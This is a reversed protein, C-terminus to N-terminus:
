LRVGHGQQVAGPWPEVCKLSVHVAQGSICKLSRAHGGVAVEDMIKVPNRRSVITLVPPPASSLRTTRDSPIDGIFRESRHCAHALESMHPFYGKFTISAGNLGSKPIFNFGRTGRPFHTVEDVHVGVDFCAGT